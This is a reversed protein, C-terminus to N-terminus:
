TWSEFGSLELFKFAKEGEKIEKIYYKIHDATKIAREIAENKQIIPMAWLIRLPMESGEDVFCVIFNTEESLHLIAPDGTQTENAPIIMRSYILSEYVM